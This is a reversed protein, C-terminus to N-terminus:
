ISISLWDDRSSNKIPTSVIKLTLALEAANMRTFLYYISTCIYLSIHKKARRCKKRKRGRTKGRAIPETACLSGAWVGYALKPGPRPGHCTSHPNFTDRGSPSANRARLVMWAWGFGCTCLVNNVPNFFTRRRMHYRPDQIDDIDDPIVYKTISFDKGSALM